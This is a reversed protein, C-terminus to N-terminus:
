IETEQKDAEWRAREEIKGERELQACKRKRKDEEEEEIRRKRWKKEENLEIKKKKQFYM